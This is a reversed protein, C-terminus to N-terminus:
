DLDPVSRAPAAGAGFLADLGSRVWAFGLGGCLYHVWLVPVAALAHWRPRTRALSRLFRINALVLAGVGLGGAALGAGPAVPLLLLGLCSAATAAVSVFGPPNLNLGPPVGRGLDSAILRAWPVARDFLDTRAMDVLTWRKLHTCQLATDLRIRHGARTLRLGLAVDEMMAQDAPFAGVQEFARRRVAGCATWFSTVEGASEMHVHRHLLNRIRSVASVAEPRDDYCGFVASLGADGAFTALTRQRVDPHVLCDADTFFLIDAGSATGGVNRAAAAGRNDPLTIVKVGCASAVATTGDSSADDVVVIEEGSFGAAKLAAVCRGICDAAQRAPVVAMITPASDTAM